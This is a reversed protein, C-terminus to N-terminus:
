HGIDLGCACISGHGHIDRRCAIRGPLFLREPDPAWWDSAATLVIEGLQENRRTEPPITAAVQVAAMSAGIDDDTGNGTLLAELWDAIAARVATRAQRQHEWYLLGCDISDIYDDYECQTLYQFLRDVTALRNRTFASHHLWDCPRGSYAAWRECPAQDSLDTLKRPPYSIESIARLVGDQDPVVARKSLRSYLCTRLLASQASDGAEHRRPLADLHRAPDTPTALRPMGDAVMTAAAKILEENYPGPLLNQRDENTKWPANLVGAVLSSTSTPFYAWFSGPRDLRDLPVAWRIPVDRDDGHLPWDGCAETSLRCTTDFRNWRSVGDGPIWIFNM